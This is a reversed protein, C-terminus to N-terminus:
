FPPLSPIHIIIIIATNQIIFTVCFWVLIMCHISCFKHMPAQKTTKPAQTELDMNTSEM